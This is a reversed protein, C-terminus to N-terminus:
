SNLHTQARVSWNGIWTMSQLYFISTTVIVEDVSKMLRLKLIRATTM